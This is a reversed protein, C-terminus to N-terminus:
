LGSQWLRYAGLAFVVIVYIWATKLMFRLTERAGQNRFVVALVVLTVFSVIVVSLLFSKM